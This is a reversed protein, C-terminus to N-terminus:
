VCVFLVEPKVLCFSSTPWIRYGSLQSMKSSVVLRHLLMNDFIFQTTQLMLPAQLPPTNEYNSLVNWNQLYVGEPQPQAVSNNWCLLDGFWLIQSQKLGCCILLPQDKSLGYHLFTYVCNSFIKQSLFGLLCHINPMYKVFAKHLRLLIGRSIWKLQLNM